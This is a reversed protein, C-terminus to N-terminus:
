RPSDHIHLRTMQEKDRYAVIATGAPCHTPFEDPNINNFEIVSVEGCSIVNVHEVRIGHRMDDEISDAIYSKGILQKGSTLQIKLEKDLHNLMKERLFQSGLYGQFIRSYFSNWEESQNSVDREGMDKKWYASLVTKAKNLRSRITGVPVCLIKAIDEYSNHKSFYRLLVTTKIEESLQEISDFLKHRNYLEDLKKDFGLDAEQLLFADDYRIKCEKQRVRYCNNVLVKKIWAPFAQPDKLKSLQLFAIMFSEQVLDKATPTNGCIALATSYLFPHFHNYLSNWAVQQGNKAENVWKYLDISQM